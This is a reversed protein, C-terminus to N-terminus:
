DPPIGPNELREAAKRLAACAADFPLLISAHRATLARADAFHHLGPWDGPEDQKGALYLSLASRASEIEDASRGVAHSGLLAASAQGLACARVDQGIEVIRGDAGLSVDVM